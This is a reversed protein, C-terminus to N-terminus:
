WWSCCYLLLTYYVQGQTGERRSVAWCADQGLHGGVLGVARHAGAGEAFFAAALEDGALVAGEVAVFGGTELCIAVVPAVRGCYVSRRWGCSAARAAGGRPAHVGEAHGGGFSVSLGLLGVAHLFGAGAGGGGARCWRLLELRRGRGRALFAM